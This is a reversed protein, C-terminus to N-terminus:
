TSTLSNEYKNIPYKGWKQVASSIAYLINDPVQFPIEGHNDSLIFGGGPAADIIAKRVENEAKEETWRRMEIGNLNGIISMKGYSAKKLEALSEKISVGVASTGTVAVDDIIKLIRGSAFHIATPSKIRSLTNKAIIHGTKLYLDRPIITTSSLPDFYCMANVGAEVQANAWDVCFAQNIGMLKWFLDIRNLILDFYAEFGMQMVPLSFPSMVVGIIPINGKSIEKLGKIIKIVKELSPSEYVRPTNLGMIDDPSHIVPAGANPPGDDSFIVEGGWAETEVSAYLFAYLCDTQYKKQLRAQGEIVYEPKSYYEKISLGLEKAGHMTLLLFLPVRDPEKFSLTALVREMSTMVKDKM